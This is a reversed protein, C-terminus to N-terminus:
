TMGDTGAGPKLTGEGPAHPEGAAAVLPRMGLM